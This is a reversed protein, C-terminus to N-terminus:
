ERMIQDRTEHRLRSNIELYSYSDLVIEGRLLAIRTVMHAPVCDRVIQELKRFLANMGAGGEETKDGVDLAVTVMYPNNGYLREILDKRAGKREPQYPHYEAVMPVKGCFALIKKKLGWVTGRKGYFDIVEELYRSLREEEWLQPTEESLFAAITPLQESGCIAPLMKEPVKDLKDEIEEQIIQFLSLFRELFASGVGSRYLEPLYSSWSEKPFHLTLTGKVDEWSELIVWLYRGVAEYLLGTGGRRMTVRLYPQFRRMKDQPSVAADRATQEWGIPVEDAAYFYLTVSQPLEEGQARYWVTQPVGSDLLPSVSYGKEDPTNRNVSQTIQNHIKWIFYKRNRTVQEWM